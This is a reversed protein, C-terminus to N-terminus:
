VTDFDVCRRITDGPLQEILQEMELLFLIENIKGADLHSKEFVADRGQPYMEICRLLAIADPPLNNLTTKAAESDAAGKPVVFELGLGTLIDDSSTAIAAGQQLLWHTGASKFSDVQGPVAFIERGFDLGYRATILSGSKRAAEVVVVGRSLGAIIRNRAPFRFTEPQSGLPYETLLLGSRQVEEYLRYNQRPYIVDLGCGLVGVTGGPERLAGAHAEYDIGLAMGSVITVGAAALNKAFMAAVRRGYGTASRSGVIAVATKQLLDVNGLTFLLPPPDPIHRLIEPYRSDSFLILDAGAHTLRKIEHEAKSIVSQSQQISQTQSSRLGPVQQLEAKSAAFVRAPSGFHEVLRWFSGVGIGKVMLLSLWALSETM